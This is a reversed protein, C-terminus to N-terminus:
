REVLAAQVTGDRQLCDVLFATGAPAWSIRNVQQQCVDLTTTRTGDRLTVEGKGIDFTALLGSPSVSIRDAYPLDGSLRSGSANFAAIRAQQWEAVLLRPGDWAISEVGGVDLTTVQGSALDLIAAGAGAASAWSWVLHAGTADFVPAGRDSVLPSRVVAAPTLDPLRLVELWGADDAGTGQGIRTVHVVALLSGSPSWALPIGPRPSGRKGSQWIAFQARTPDSWPLELAAVRNGPAALGTMTTNASPMLEGSDVSGALIAGSASAPRVLFTRAGTWALDSGPMTRLLTGDRAYLRVGVGQERMTNGVEDLAFFRGDTSWPDSAATGSGIVRVTPTPASSPSAAVRSATAFGPSAGSQPGTRPGLLYALAAVSVLIAAAALSAATASAHGFWHSSRPRPVALTEAVRARLSPSASQHMLRDLIQRLDREFQEDSM